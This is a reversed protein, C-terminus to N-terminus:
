PKRWISTETVVNQSQHVMPWSQPVGWDALPLRNSNDIVLCGGSRLYDLCQDVCTQRYHGDVLIVNFSEKEFKFIEAVYHPTEPYHKFTPATYEHDLPIYRLDVNSIKKDSIM